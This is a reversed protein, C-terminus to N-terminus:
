REHDAGFFYFILDSYTFFSDLPSFSAGAYLSSFLM